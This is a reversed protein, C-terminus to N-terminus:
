IFLRPIFWEKLFIILTCGCNLLYILRKLHFLLPIFSYHLLLEFVLCEFIIVIVTYFLLRCYSVNFRISQPPCNRLYIQSRAFQVMAGFAGNPPLIGRKWCVVATPTGSYHIQSQKNTIMTAKPSDKYFKDWRHFATELTQRQLEDEKTNGKAMVPSVTNSTPRELTFYQWIALM